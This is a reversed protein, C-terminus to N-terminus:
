PGCMATCAIVPPHAVENDRVSRYMESKTAELSRAPVQGFFAGDFQVCPGFHAGFPTNAGVIM